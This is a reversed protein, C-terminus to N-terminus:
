IETEGDTIYDSSNKGVVSRVGHTHAHTHAHTHTHTHTHTHIYTRKEGRVGVLERTRQATVPPPPSTRCNM